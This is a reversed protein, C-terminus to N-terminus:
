YINKLCVQKFPLVLVLFLFILIGLKCYLVFDIFFSLLFFNLNYGRWYKEKFIELSPASKKERELSNWLRTAGFSFGKPWQDEETVTDYFWYRILASVM